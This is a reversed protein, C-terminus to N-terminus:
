AYASLSAIELFVYLNFLDGTVVIGTLGCVFLLIVAYVGITKGPIEKLFSLRAYFLTLLAILTIIVSMYSSFYDLVYEIGIPPLWNGLYYHQPGNILVQVLGFCSSIFALTLGILAIFHPLSRRFMGGILTFLSFLLLITPTLVPLQSM